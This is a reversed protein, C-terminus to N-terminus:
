RPQAAAAPPGGKQDGGGPTDAGSAPAAGAVGAALVAASGLVALRVRGRRVWVLTRAGDPQELDHGGHDLPSEGNM